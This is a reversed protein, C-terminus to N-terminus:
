RRAAGFGGAAGPLGPDGRRPDRRLPQGGRGRREGRPAPHGPPRAGGVGGGGAVEVTSGPEASGSLVLVLACLAAPSPALTPAGPAGEDATTYSLEGPNALPNGALDRLGATLILRLATASPLPAAPRVALEAGAATVVVALPAGAATELRLDAAGPTDLAESFTLVFDGDLAVALAGAAPQAAVFTPAEDDRFVTRTHTGFNGQADVARAVLRNEGALLPVGAAEFRNGTVTAPRGNVTVTLGPEDAVRGSVAIEADGVRAGDAPREIEVDPATSDRRVSVTAEARNGARDFAAVVLSNAGEALAVEASWAGATVAARTGAADVRDLHPDSVQGRLVIRADPTVTGAAPDTIVLEPALTDAVVQRTLERTNGAADTAVATLTNAGEQLPLQTVVWGGGTLVGNQGNVTVTSLHPDGATGQVTISRSALLADAAPSAIALAPPTADRVLRHLQVVRNGVEDVAALEFSNAGEALALPGATFTEGVLPVAVGDVRVAAAGTVRGQLVVQPAATVTGAAPEITVFVPGVTDITFLITKAASNGAADTASVALEHQGDAVVATGAVYPTGDLRVDATFSSADTIEVTPTVPRNFATGSLLEVEAERIVLVPPETDHVVAVTAEGRNGAADTAVVTLNATGAAVPVVVSFTEGGLPAVVGQVRVEALHLDVATGTVTVTSGTVLSGNAPSLITVVPAVTDREIRHSAATTNGAADLAELPFTNLGETLALPGLQFSEGTLTAATDGSRVATAEGGVTGSLTVTTTGVLAGDPPQIPGFVPATTDIRFSVSRAASNGAADQATVTLEYLGDAEVASGSATPQGNLRGEVVLATADTASWTPLVPRRFVTGDPFPSGSELITIAPAGTDSELTVTATSVLGVADRATVTLTNEGEALPVVPLSWLNGDVVADVGGVRVGVLFADTATGAVDVSRTGLVGGAAPQLIAVVPPTTDLILTRLLQARNGAADAATLLLSNGGEALALPGVSFDEDAPGTLPVNQGALELAVAGSVRGSLIVAPNSTLSSEPPNVVGFVPPTLDITFSVGATATNGAADTATVGLQHPGEAAVPTGSTFGAGDLTLTTTVPSADTVVVVPVVTRNYLAGPPLELGSELIQIQPAETDGPTTEGNWITLDDVYKEAAGEACVGIWGTRRDHHGDGGGNAGGFSPDVVDISWSPPEAQGVRWLKARLRVRDAAELTAEITFRYWVNAAMSLDADRDGAVQGHGVAELRVPDGGDKQTLLYYDDFAPFKSLFSVGVRGKTKTRMMRGEFRFGRAVDFVRPRYHTCSRSAGKHGFALNGSSVPDPWTKFLGPAEQDPNGPASDFWGPPEGPAGYTEFPELYAPPPVAQALLAPAGWAAISLLGSVLARRLSLANV